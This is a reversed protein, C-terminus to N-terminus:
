CIQEVCYSAPGPVAEACDTSPEWLMPKKPAGDESGPSGLRLPTAQLRVARVPLWPAPAGKGKWERGNRNPGTYHFYCATVGSGLFGGASCYSPAASVCSGGGGRRQGKNGPLTRNLRMSGQRQAASISM